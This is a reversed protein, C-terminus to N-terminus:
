FQPCSYSCVSLKTYICIIVYLFFQMHIHSTYICLNTHICINGQESLESPRSSIVSCYCCLWRTGLDANRIGNELIPFSPKNSLHSISPSPCSVCLILRSCRMTNSYLVTSFIFNGGHHPLQLYQWLWLLNHVFSLWTNHLIKSPATSCLFFM